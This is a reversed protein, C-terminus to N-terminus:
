KIYLYKIVYCIGRKGPIVPSSVVLGGRHHCVYDSGEGSVRGKLSEQANVVWGECFVRCGYIRNSRTIGCSMQERMDHGVSGCDTNQACLQPPAYLDQMACM